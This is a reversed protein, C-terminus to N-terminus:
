KKYPGRKNGKRKNTSLTLRLTYSIENNFMYIARIRFRDFNDLGNSIRILNNIEGNMHETTANTLKKNAPGTRIFSNIIFDKWRYIMETFEKYCELNAEKFDKYLIDFWEEDNSTDAYKIYAHFDEKLNYAKTLDDDIKILMNYIDRYNLKSKFHKNYKPENDLKIDQKILLWNWKKLLYYHNSGYPKENMIKIRLDNFGKDLHKIVHFPDVAILANKFYKLAVDRYPEWMDMTVYEVSDLEEKPIKDLYRILTPKSRNPLIDILNNNDNDILIGLYAGGYKAMGSHIEDMGLNKPLKIRPFSLFSDLYTEVVTQSVHNKDAIYKITLLHSLDDMISQLVAYTVHLNNPGFPNDESFTKHCEKCKYRRRKWVIFSEKDFIDLHKYNRTTYNLINVKSGCYPCHYISRELQIHIYIIKKDESFSIDFLEVNEKDVNLITSIIYESDM